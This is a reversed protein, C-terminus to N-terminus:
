FMSRETVVFASEEAGGELEGILPISPEKGLCSGKLYNQLWFGM